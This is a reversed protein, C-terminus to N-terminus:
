NNKNSVLWSGLQQKKYRKLKNPFRGEDGNTQSYLLCSGSSNIPETEM